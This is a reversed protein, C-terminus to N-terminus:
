LQHLIIFHHIQLCWITVLWFQMTSTFSALYSYQYLRMQSQTSYFSIYHMVSCLQNCMCWMNSPYLSVFNLYVTWVLSVILTHYDELLPLVRKAYSKESETGNITLLILENQNLSVLGITLGAALAASFLILLFPYM